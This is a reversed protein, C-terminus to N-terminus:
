VFAQWLKNVLVAVGYALLTNFGMSFAAWKWGAERGIVAVTVFCPAYLLVFLMFALASGKNWKPDSALKGALGETPSAEEADEYEGPDVEGLSYATGLTSIVVEKAAFGGILAINTRWDFGAPTSVTELAKGMRGAVSNALAEEAHQNELDEVAEKLAKKREDESAFTKAKVAEEAQAIEQEQKALTSEPLKPYTMMAWILISIVLIVTGAKRVYMWVREWTHMCLSLLTPVRYPPLEMVFPMSAGSLMTKRLFLSVLLVFAWGTLTIGFMVANASETFFAISLMLFVPTKAGCSLFPATLITAIREKPSRLTRTAMVGPVACGGPIGGAIIFPVVSAGHLGFLRFIRDLMYAMRALYGSDELFSLFFFMILILPAFSLVGGVGSIIGDALLSRLDGEAMSNETLDKLWDFFEEVWGQPAAGLEITLWFLGYLVALMIIPGLLANTLVKDLKQTIGYRTEAPRSVIGQLLSNIFGYRQDTVVADPSTRLTQRTHEGVKKVTAMLKEHCAPSKAGQELVEADQEMYKVAIWRPPCEKRSSWFDDKGILDEMEQLAPDLDSGYAVHLPGPTVAGSQIGEITTKLIALLEEKGEGTRGVVGVVPAGLSASLKSQDISIGKARMEDLMNLVLLIPIGMERIQLVLSLSREIAVAEVVIVALSPKEQLLFNRAALEEPSYATLSYTGPLDVLTCAVGGIKLTGELKEVTIGPYNGVRQHAGTLLNFITSKGCNPNGALAITCPKM